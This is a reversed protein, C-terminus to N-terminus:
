KMQTAYYQQRRAREYANQQYNQLFIWAKDSATQYNDLITTENIELDQVQMVPEVTALPQPPTDRKTSVVENSSLVESGTIQPQAYALVCLVVGLAVIIVGTNNRHSTARRLVNDQKINIVKM